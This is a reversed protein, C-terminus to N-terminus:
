GAHVCVLAEVTTAAVASGGVIVRVVAGVSVSSSAGVVEAAIVAVGQGSMISATSCSSGGAPAEEERSITAAPSETFAPQLILFVPPQM